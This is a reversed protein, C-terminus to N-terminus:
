EGIVLVQFTGPIMKPRRQSPNTQPEFEATPLYILHTEEDVIITRAGRKTTIIAIAEVKSASTEHFVSITGEGNSAFINKTGADFGVGDCGDGIPLRAVVAGTAANVAILFKNGCGAFLRNTKKDLVLGTPEEGPSVPWHAEVTYTKLDIVIIENKDEINVYLKGKENSVATEPKGGVAITAIVKNEVLDIISLDKSLGNCTIIKKLLPEYLIADPNKGTSIQAITKHTALDFVTVNDSGGNSTYGKGNVKDFAIGHVGTTNEIIGTSDGTTKDLINVRTGHSVYLRNDPGIAIYDWGGGSQIHFTKLIHFISRELFKGATDFLLDKKNVEAEYVVTGDKKIVKAAESIKASKYNNTIYHGIGPPLEALPVETETEQLVGEGSYVVSTERGNLVFSAEYENKGEKGWKVKGPKGYAKSFSTRVPEPLNKEDMNQSYGMTAMAVMFCAPLLLQKM